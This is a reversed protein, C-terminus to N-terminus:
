TDLGGRCRPRGAERVALLDMNWHLVTHPAVDSVFAGQVLELRLATDDRPVDGLGGGPGSVASGGFSVLLESTAPVRRTAARGWDRTCHSGPAPGGALERIRPTSGGVHRSI